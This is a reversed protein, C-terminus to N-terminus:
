ESQHVWLYKNDKFTIVGGGSADESKDVRVFISVNDLKFDVGGIIDGSTEDFNIKKTISDKLLGWYNVWNFDTMEKFYKGFGLRTIKNTRGDTILIGSHNDITKFDARDEVKDGNFDAFIPNKLNFIKYNQFEDKLDEIRSQTLSDTSSNLDPTHNVISDVIDKKSMQSEKVKGSQGCSLFIIIILLTWIYKRM